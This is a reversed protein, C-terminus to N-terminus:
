RTRREAVDLDQAPPFDIEVDGLAALYNLFVCLAVLAAVEVLDSDTAGVARAADLVVAAHHGRNLVLKTAVALLAQERDDGSRGQRFLVVDGDTVGAGEAEQVHAARCYDCDNLEAVRLAIALRLRPTLM